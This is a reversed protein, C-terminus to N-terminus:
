RGRGRTCLPLLTPQSGISPKLCRRSLYAAWVPEAQREHPVVGMEGVAHAPFGDLVAQVVRETVGLRLAEDRLTDGSRSAPVAACAEIFRQLCSHARWDGERHLLM